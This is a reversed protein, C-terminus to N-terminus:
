ISLLRPFPPPPLLLFERKVERGLDEHKGPEPLALRDRAHDITDILSGLPSLFSPLSSAYTPEVPVVVAPPFPAAFKPDAAM